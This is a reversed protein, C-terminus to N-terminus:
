LVGQIFKTYRRKLKLIHKKDIVYDIYVADYKKNSSFVSINYKEEKERILKMYKEYLEPYMMKAYALERMSACPCMMCGCRDCYIYYDNFIKEHRAWELIYDECVGEIALPYIVNESERQRKIEDACIGIYNIVKRGSIKEDHELQKACDLKYISNCWRVRRTPYGYKNCLDLFSTRPKYRRFPIGYSKCVNEMHNTVDRIFPFDTELEFHVVGDLPYKNLNSLIVGLMFLSDKGGSVNAWYAPRLVIDNKM